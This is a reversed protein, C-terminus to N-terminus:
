LYGWSAALALADHFRTSAAEEDRAAVAEELATGLSPPLAQQQPHLMAQAADVAAGIRRDILLVAILPWLALWKFPYANPLPRWADLARRAHEEAVAWNRERWAFWALNATAVAIYEQM